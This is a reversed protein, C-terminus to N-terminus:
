ISDSSDDNVSVTTDVKYQLTSLRKLLINVTPSKHKIKIKKKKGEGGMVVSIFAKRFKMNLFSYILPNICSNLGTGLWQAIPVVNGIIRGASETVKFFKVYIQIVYLPLWSLAFM